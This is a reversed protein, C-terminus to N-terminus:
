EAATPQETANAVDKAGAAITSLMEHRRAQWRAGLAKREPGAPLDVMMGASLAKLQELDQAEEILAEYTALKNLDPVVVPAPKAVSASLQTELETPAEPAAPAGDSLWARLIDAVDKGPKHFVKGDIEDCRTKGIVLNHEIDLMGEVDAEYQFSDRMEPAMGVKRVTTKGNGDQEKVYEQKARMTVIIHMPSTIIAQVMKRYLPDLIKWANFSDGKGGRAKQKKVEEDVLELFGGTGNWFHSVSDVITVDFGDTAAEALAKILINPNYDKTINGADFPVKDSYKSASGSETDIVAIRGGPVLYKAIELASRTKGSGSPGHIAMRLKAQKKEARQFLGM